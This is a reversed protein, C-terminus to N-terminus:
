QLRSLVEDAWGLAGCYASALHKNTVDIVRNDFTNWDGQELAVVMALWSGLIGTQNLIAAQIRDELPLSELITCIPADFFADLNSLLGVLFGCDADEGGIDNALLYIFRARVLATQMLVTPKETLSSLSILLVWQKLAM